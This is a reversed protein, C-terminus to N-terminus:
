KVNMECCVCVCVCVGVCVVCMEKKCDDSNKDLVGRAKQLTM